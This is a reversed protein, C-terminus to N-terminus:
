GKRRQAQVWDKGEAAIGELVHLTNTLSAADLTANSISEEDEGPQIEELNLDSVIVPVSEGNVLTLKFKQQIRPNEASARKPLSVHASAVADYRYSLRERHQLTMRVTSLEATLQRVGDSTLVFVILKYRSYRMPGNHVRASRAGVGPGELFAHTNVQHRALKYHDIAQGLLVTRDYDLWTAMEADSPRDTLRDTWRTFEAESDKQRQKAEKRDAEYRRHELDIRLRSRWAWAGIPVGAIVSVADALPDSRLMFVAIIGGLVAFVVGVRCAAVTEPSPRLEKRFDYLTGNRWRDRSQRIRYRILWAVREAPIRSERYVEVIEDRDFAHIGATSAKWAERETKDSLCQPWYHRFLADVKDAFGDRPPRSAPPRSAQLQQEKMRRREALFRLEPGKAAASLAGALGALYALVGFVGGHWLLEWGFYGAAAAFLLTSARAASRNAPTIAAPEPDRVRPKIPIPQFFMWARNRREGALRGVEASKCEREWLDDKRPGELFLELHPLLMDRQRQDLTDFEDIVTSIEPRPDKPLLGVAELLRFILRAGEIWPDGGFAPHRKQACKLQTIEEQSFQRITRGSLMAVLWHFCADSTDHGEMMADWILERAKTARHSRLNEVGVRYKDESTAGLPLELRLDGHVVTGYVIDGDVNQAQVFSRANDGVFNFSSDGPGTM